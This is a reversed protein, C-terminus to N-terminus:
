HPQLVHSPFYYLQKSNYNHNNGSMNLLMSEEEGM